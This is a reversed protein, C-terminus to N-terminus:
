PLHADLAFHLRRAALDVFPLRREGVSTRKRVVTREHTRHVPRVHPRRRQLLREVFMLDHRNWGRVFLVEEVSRHDHRGAAADLGRARRNAKGVAHSRHKQPVRFAEACSPVSAGM